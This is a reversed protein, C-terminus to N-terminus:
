RRLVELSYAVSEQSVSHIYPKIPNGPTKPAYALVFFFIRIHMKFNSLLYREVKYNLTRILFKLGLTDRSADTAPATIWAIPLGSNSSPKHVPHWRSSLQHGPLDASVWHYVHRGAQGQPGGQAISVRTKGNWPM